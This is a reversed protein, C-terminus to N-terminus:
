AIKKDPWQALFEKWHAEDSKALVSRVLECEREYRARTFQGRM